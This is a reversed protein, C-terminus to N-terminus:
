LPGVCVFLCNNVWVQTEWTDGLRGPTGSNGLHGQTKWTDGGGGERVNVSVLNEKGTEEHQLTVGAVRFESRGGAPDM